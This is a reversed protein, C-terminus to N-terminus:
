IDFSLQEGDYANFLPKPKEEVVEIERKPSPTPELLLGDCEFRIYVAIVQYDPMESVKIHWGENPYVKAIAKRMQEITM